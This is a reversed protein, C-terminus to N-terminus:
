FYDFMKHRTIKHKSPRNQAIPHEINSINTAKKPNHAGPKQYSRQLKNGKKTRNLLTKPSQIQNDRPETRPHQKNKRKNTPAKRTESQTTLINPRKYM